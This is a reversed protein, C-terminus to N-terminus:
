PSHGAAVRLDLVVSDGRPAADAVLRFIARTYPTPSAGSEIRSLETHLGTGALSCPDSRMADAIAPEIQSWPLDPRIAVICDAGNSSSRLQTTGCAALSLPAALSFLSFVFSSKSRNASM